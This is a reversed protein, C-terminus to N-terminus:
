KSKDKAQNYIDKVVSTFRNIAEHQSLGQQEFAIALDMALIFTGEGVTFGGDHFQQAITEGMEKMEQMTKSM